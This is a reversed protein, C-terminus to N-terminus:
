RAAVNRRDRGRHGPAGNAGGAARGLARKWMHVGGAALGGGLAVGDM